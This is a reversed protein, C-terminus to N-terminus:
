MVQRGVRLEGNRHPTCTKLHAARERCGFAFRGFIFVYSTLIFIIFTSAKDPKTRACSPHPPPPPEVVGAVLEVDSEDTLGRDDDTAELEAGANTEDLVASEDDLTEVPM